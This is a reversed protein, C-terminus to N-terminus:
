METEEECVCPVNGVVVVAAELHQREVVIGDVNEDVDGDLACPKGVPVILVSASM